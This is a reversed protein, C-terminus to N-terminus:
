TIAIIRHEREFNDKRIRYYEEKKAHYRTDKTYEEFYRPPLRGTVRFAGARQFVGRRKTPELFLGIIWFDSSYSSAPLAYFDFFRAIPEISHDYSTWSIDQRDLGMQVKIERENLMIYELWFSAVRAWNDSDDHVIFLSGTWLYDIGFERIINM